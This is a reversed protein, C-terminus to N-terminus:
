ALVSPPREQPNQRVILQSPELPSAMNLTRILYDAFARVKPSLQRNSPWVLWLSGFPRMFESLVPRLEGSQIRTKVVYSPLHALGMGHLAAWLGADTSNFTFTRSVSCNAYPDRFSWPALRGSSPYKFQICAHQHLYEPSEPVGHVNLYSPNGCVVFHQDGIKRAVLRTDALDGTRIAVDVGSAVLDVVQDDFEVDLEIEPHLKAFEPLLPLLMHQGFVHPVSIKLKGKPAGVSRKMTDKVDSIDDLVRKFRAYFVAGEETVGISRTTRNLLRVGLRDELRSVSKSIASPSVGMIRAAAAYSRQEVAYIFAACGRLNEM